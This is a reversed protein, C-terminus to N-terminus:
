RSIVMKRAQKFKGATIQYFYTGPTLNSTDFILTSNGTTFTDNAIETILKGDSGYLKISAKGGDVLYFPITTTNLVPNPYNQGLKNKPTVIENENVSLPIHETEFFHLGQYFFQNAINGALLLRNDTHPVLDQGYFEAYEPGVFFEEEGNGSADVTILTAIPFPPTYIKHPFPDIIIQDMIYCNDAGDIHFGDYYRMNESEFHWLEEGDGDYKILVNNIDDNSNLSYGIVAIAGDSFQKLTYSRENKDQAGFVQSWQLTGDASIKATLIDELFTTNNQIFGNTYIAGDNDIVVDTGSASSGAIVVPTQWAPTGNSNFKLVTLNVAQSIFDGSGCKGTVIFDGGPSVKGGQIAYITNSANSSTVFTKWLEQGTASIRIGVFSPNEDSINEYATGGLYLSGDAGTEMVNIQPNNLNIETEWLEVGAPSIKKLIYQSPGGFQPLLLVFSNGNNDVRGLIGDAANGNEANYIAQWAINGLANYKVLFYNANLMGDEFNYYYGTSFTNGTTDAFCHLMSANPAATNTYVTHWDPDPATMGFTSKITEFVAGQESYFSNISFYINSNTDIGIGAMDGMTATGSGTEIVFAAQGLLNGQPSYKKARTALNQTWEEAGPTMGKAAVVPNGQMDFLLKVNIADILDTTERAWNQTGDLEYSLLVNGNNAFNGNHNGAVYLKNNRIAIQWGETKEGQTKFTRLWQQQGSANYKITGIRGLFTDFIGTVYINNNADTTISRPISNTVDSPNEPDTSAYNYDQTWLETGNASYKVTHYNLWGDNNPSFGTVIVNNANDIAIATAENWSNAGLGNDRAQWELNGNTNYKLTIYDVSSGFWSIGTIYISGDTGIVMAAPADVGLHPSNYNSTWLTTGDPSYKITRIDMDNGNWELGTVVVNGENDLLLKMGYEVAYKEAPIRAQWLITGQPSVKMTFFDGAPWNENSSGGTIYTNGQADSAMDFPVNNGTTHEGGYFEYDNTFIRMERPRVGSQLLQREQPNQFLKKTESSGFKQWSMLQAVIGSEKSVKFGNQNELSAEQAISTSSLFFTIFVIILRITKM